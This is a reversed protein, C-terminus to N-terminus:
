RAYVPFVDYTITLISKAGFSSDFTEPLCVALHQRDHSGDGVPGYTRSITDAHALAEKEAAEAATAALVLESETEVSKGDYFLVYKRVEWLGPVLNLVNAAGRNIKLQIAM